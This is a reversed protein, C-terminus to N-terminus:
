EGGSSLVLSPRPRTMQVAWRAEVEYPNTEYSYSFYSGWSRLAEHQSQWIHCLEHVLLDDHYDADRMLILRAGAM